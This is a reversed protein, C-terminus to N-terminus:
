FGERELFIRCKQRTRHLNSKIKSESCQFYESIDKISDFYWYKRLFIVRSEYDLSRLFRDLAAGLEKKSIDAIADAKKSPLVAELEDFSSTKKLSRKQANQYQIKKLAHNRVIRLFWAGLREPCAPPIQKWISLMSDQIVEEADQDSYLLRRALNFSAYGYKNDLEELGRESRRFLLDIIEKDEM